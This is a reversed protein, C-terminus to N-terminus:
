KRLNNAMGWMEDATRMTRANFGYARQAEIMNFMEEALNFNPTELFGQMITGCGPSAAVGPIVEGTTNDFSLLDGGELRLGALNTFKYLQIQGSESVGEPGEARVTGNPSVTIKEASPSFRVGELVCGNATVLNGSEDLNFNGDRTYYVESGRVVRFFGEGNVALDLSRGTKMVDGASFYKAVEAVRVGSGSTVETNGPSGTYEVPQNVLESFNTRLKKYGPTNVNTLNNAVTDVRLQQANLGCASSSLAKLM